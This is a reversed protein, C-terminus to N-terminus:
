ISSSSSTSTVGFDIRRRLFSSSSFSRLFSSRFFSVSVTQRAACAPLCTSDTPRGVRPLRYPAMVGVHFRIIRRRRNSAGFMM